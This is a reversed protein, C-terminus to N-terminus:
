PVTALGLAEIEDLEKLIESDYYYGTPLENDFRFLSKIEIDSLYTPVYLIGRNRNEFSTQAIAANGLLRPATPQNSFVDWRHESFELLEGIRAIKSFEKQFVKGVHNGLATLSDDLVSPKKKKGDVPNVFPLLDQKTTEGLTSEDDFHSRIESSHASHKADIISRHDQDESTPGIEKSEPADIGGLPPSVEIETDSVAGLTMNTAIMRADENTMGWLVYYNELMIIQRKFDEIRTAMLLAGERLSSKSLGTQPQSSDEKKPSSIGAPEDMGDIKVKLVDMREIFTRFVCPTKLLQYIRTRQLGFVASIVCTKPSVKGFLDRTFQSFSAANATTIVIEFTGAKLLKSIADSAKIGRERWKALHLNSRVYIRLMPGVGYDLLTNIIKTGIVGPGYILIRPAKIVGLYARLTCLTYFSVQAAIANISHSRGMIEENDAIEEDALNLNNINQFIFDPSKFNIESHM